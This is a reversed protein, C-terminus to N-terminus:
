KMEEIVQKLEAPLEHNLERELAQIEDQLKKVITTSMAVLDQAAGGTALIRGPRGCNYSVRALLRLRGLPTKHRLCRGPPRMKLHMRGAHLQHDGSLM